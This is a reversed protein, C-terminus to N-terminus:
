PVQLFSPCSLHSAPDHDDAVSLDSCL